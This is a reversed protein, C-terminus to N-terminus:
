LLNRGPFRMRAFAFAVISCSLIRGIISMIAIFLTNTAFRLFPIKDIVNFYNEWHLQDPFVVPPWAFLQKADKLSTLFVWGVPIGIVVVAFFLLTLFVLISNMRRALRQSSFARTRITPTATITAM